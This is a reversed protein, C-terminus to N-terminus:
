CRQSPSKRSIGAKGKPPVLFCCSGGLIEPRPSLASGMPIVSGAPIQKHHLEQKWFWAQPTHPYFGGETPGRQICWCHSTAASCSKIGLIFCNPKRPEREPEPNLHSGVWVEREGKLVHLFFFSGCPVGPWTRCPWPAQAQEWWGGSSFGAGSLM